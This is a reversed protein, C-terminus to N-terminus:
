FETEVITDGTKHDVLRVNAYLGWSAVIEQMSKAQWKDECSAELEWENTAVQEARQSVVWYRYKGAKNLNMRHKSVTWNNAMENTMM